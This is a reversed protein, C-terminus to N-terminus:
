NSWTCNFVKSWEGYQGTTTAYRAAIGYQGNYSHNITLGSSLCYNGTYYQPKFSFYNVVGPIQYLDGITTSVGGVTVSHGSFSTNVNTPNYNPTWDLQNKIVLIQTYGLAPGFPPIGLNLACTKGPGVTNNNNYDVSFDKVGGVSCASSVSTPQDYSLQGATTARSLVPQVDNCNKESSFASREFRGLAPDNYRLNTYDYKYDVAQVTVKHKVGPVNQAITGSAIRNSIQFDVVSIGATTPYSLIWPTGLVLPTIPEGTSPSSPLIAGNIYEKRLRADYGIYTNLELNKFAHVNLNCEYSIPYPTLDFHPVSVGRDILTNSWPTEVSSGDIARLKFRVLYKRRPNLADDVVASASSDEITRLVRGVKVSFSFRGNICQPYETGSDIVGRGKNIWICQTGQLPVTTSETNCNTSVSNDLYPNGSTNEGEFLQVLIRNQKLNLDACKGSIEVSDGQDVNLQYSSSDSEISLQGQIKEPPDPCEETSCVKQGSLLGSQNANPKCSFIFLVSTYLFLNLIVRSLKM